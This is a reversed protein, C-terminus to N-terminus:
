FMLAEDHGVALDDSAADAEGDQPDGAVERDVLDNEGLGPIKSQEAGSRQLTEVEGHVRRSLSENRGTRQGRSLWRM